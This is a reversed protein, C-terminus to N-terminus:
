HPLWDFILAPESLMHLALFANTVLLFHYLLAALNFVFSTITRCPLLVLDYQNCTNKKKEWQIIISM